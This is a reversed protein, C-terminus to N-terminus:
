DAQAPLRFELFKKLIPSAARVIRDDNLDGPVKEGHFVNCRIQYLVDKLQQLKRKDHFSKLLNSNAKIEKETWSDIEAYNKKSLNMVYFGNKKKIAERLRDVDCSFESNTLEALYRDQFEKAFMSFTYDETYKEGIKLKMELDREKIEINDGQFHVKAPISGDEASRRFPQKLDARQKNAKDHFLAYCLANFAVWLSMFRFYPDDTEESQKMWGKILREQKHDIKHAINM